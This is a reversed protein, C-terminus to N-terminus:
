NKVLPVQCGAGVQVKVNIYKSTEEIGPSRTVRLSM